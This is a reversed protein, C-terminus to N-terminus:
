DKNFVPPTLAVIRLVEPVESAIKWSSMGPKWVYTSADVKNQTVLRAMESESLPGVQKGDVIVYFLSSQQRIPSDAGPVYMQQLSDNMVKIMQNAMNIGLGFEILRDLSYFSDNDM